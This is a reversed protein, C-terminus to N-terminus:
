SGVSEKWPLGAGAPNCTSETVWVLEKRKLGHNFDPPERKLVTDHDRGIMRDIWDAM